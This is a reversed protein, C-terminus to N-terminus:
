TFSNQTGLFRCIQVLMGTSHFSSLCNKLLILLGCVLRHFLDTVKVKIAATIEM